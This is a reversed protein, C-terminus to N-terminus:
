QGGSAGEEPGRAGPGSVSEQLWVELSGKRGRGFAAALDTRGDGDVDGLAVGYGLVDARPADPGFGPCARWSGTGDGIWLRVAAEHYDVAVLDSRGDGNLDGLAIGYYIAYRERTMPPPLGEVSRTWGGEGDGLFVGLPLNGPWYDSSLALDLHGDGDVDGFAAQHLQGKEPLGESASRYRGDGDSVWVPGRVEGSPAKRGQSDLTAAVDPVGDGNVDGLEVDFGSGESPLGLELPEWGGKGDGRYAGVGGFFSSVGVLDTHGDGDLDAFALDEFGRPNAPDVMPGLSFSRDGENLFVFPSQCHDAVGVDLRGDENVDALDVGVGCSFKPVALGKTVREWSGGGDGLFVRAGPAKRPYAALDLHGDGDLDGLAPDTRWEGATPLGESAERFRPCGGPEGARAAEAPAETGARASSEAEAAGGGETGGCPLAFALPLALLAVRLRPSGAPRSRDM